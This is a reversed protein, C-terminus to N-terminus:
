NKLNFEHNLFVPMEKTNDVINHQKINQSTCLEEYKDDWSLRYSDQLDFGLLNLYYLIVSKPDKDKSKNEVEIAIMFPYIDVVVEIDENSFIHRKREYSEILKMHIVNELLYILNDIENYNISVEVEEETNIEENLFNEKRRKYTIMCKKTENNITTRLRFRADIEKSYYDYEKMPHNYQITKEQFCGKYNLEKFTKLYNLIKQEESLSYLFRVETEINDKKVEITEEGSLLEYVSTNLIESLTILLTLDPMYNGNEWRSITKDTVYLREALQRQTIGLQNRKKAIFSGIKYNNM